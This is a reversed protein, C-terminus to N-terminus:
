NGTVQTPEITGEDGFLMIQVMPPLEHRQYLRSRFLLGRFEFEFEDDDDFLEDFLRLRLLEDDDCRLEDDNRRWWWGSATAAVDIPRIGHKDRINWAAGGEKLLQVMAVDGNVAAYHLASGGAAGVANINDCRKILERSAAPLRKTVSSILLVEDPVELVTRVLEFVRPLDLAAAADLIRYKFVDSTSDTLIHRLPTRSALGRILGHLSKGKRHCSGVWKGLFATGPIGTLQKVLTDVL